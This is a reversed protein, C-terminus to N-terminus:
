GAVRLFTCRITTPTQALAANPDNATTPALGTTAAVVGVPMVTEAQLEEVGVALTAAVLPEHVEAEGTAHVEDDSVRDTVLLQALPPLGM